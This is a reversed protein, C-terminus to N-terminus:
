AMNAVIAVEYHLFFLLLFLPPSFFLIFYFVKVLKLTTLKWGIESECNKGEKKRSTSCFNRILTLTM